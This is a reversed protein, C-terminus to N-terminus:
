PHRPEGGPEHPAPTDNHHPLRDLPALAFVAYLLGYAAAGVGYVSYGILAVIWPVSLGVTLSRRAIRPRIVLSDAAQLAVVAATLSLAAAGSRFGLTLLLLPLSGVAVGVHPLLTFVAAAFGIASPAPLDLATAVGTVALGVAVAFGITLLVVTRARTVAPGVTDAVRARRAENPDQELAAGAIRPGYTLFFITLIAGVLYTPATGATTRLVDGGGAVRTDLAEVSSDVRDTLNFDRALEGVRDDRAEIAAAAEPAVRQLRNVEQEIGDFVLYTTGVGVVALAALTVLVAPARRIYPALWDVV